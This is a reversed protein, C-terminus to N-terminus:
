FGSANRRSIPARRTRGTMHARSRCNRLKEYDKHGRLKTSLSKATHFQIEFDGALNGGALRLNVNM